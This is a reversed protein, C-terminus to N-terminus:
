IKVQNQQCKNPSNNEVIKYVLALYLLYIYLCSGSCSRIRVSKVWQLLRALIKDINRIWEKFIVEVM